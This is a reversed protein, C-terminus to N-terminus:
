RVAQRPSLPSFKSANTITEGKHILKAVISNALEYGRGSHDALLYM